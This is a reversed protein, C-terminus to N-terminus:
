KILGRKWKPTNLRMNKLGKGQMWSVRTKTENDENRKTELYRAFCPIGYCSSQNGKSGIERRQSCVEILRLWPDSCLIVLSCILGGIWTAM